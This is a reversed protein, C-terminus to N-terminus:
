TNPGALKQRVRGWLSRLRDQTSGNRGVRAAVLEAEAAQWDQSGDGDPCGRSQWIEYARRAIEDQPVDCQATKM